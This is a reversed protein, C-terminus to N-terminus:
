SAAINVQTCGAADLCELFFVASFGGRSIKNTLNRENEPIGAKTLRDALDRYTLGHRKVEGKLINKALDQYQDPKLM